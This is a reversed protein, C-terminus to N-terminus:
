FWPRQTGEILLMRSGDAQPQGIYQLADLLQPNDGRAALHAQAAYRGLAANFTGALALPGGRDSIVGAIAGDPTSAFTAQLDGLPAQAAGAVAAGRWLAHGATDMPWVGLLRAHAVDIEITGLLQLAPIGLAPAAEQAPLTLSVDRFSVAGDAAREVIGHGSFAAGSVEVQMVAVRQLLPAPQLTWALAGLDQGYAAAQEARGHWLTGSIGHLRLQPLRPGLWRWAFDAPCTVLALAGLAALVLVATLIRRM